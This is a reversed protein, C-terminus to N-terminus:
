IRCTRIDTIIIGRADLETLSDMIENVANREIMAKVAV